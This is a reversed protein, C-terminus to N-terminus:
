QKILKHIFAKGNNSELKIVYIGKRLQRADIRVYDLLESQNTGATVVRGQADFLTWTKIFDADTGMLQILWSDASPNPYVNLQNTEERAMKQSMCLRESIIQVQKQANMKEGCYNEAEAKLIYQGLRSGGFAAKTFDYPIDNNVNFPMSVNSYPSSGTYTGQADAFYWYPKLVPSQTKISFVNNHGECINEEGVIEMNISPVEVKGKLVYDSGCPTLVTATVDAYITNNSRNAEIEAIQSTHGKVVSLPTGSVQWRVGYPTKTPLNTIEFEDSSGNCITKPWDKKEACVVECGPRGKDIEQLLWAVNKATLTTHEETTNPAYYTDFPTLGECSLRRNSYNSFHDNVNNYKVDLASFTNIFTFEMNLYYVNLNNKSLLVRSGDLLSDPLSFTGGPYDDQWYNQGNNFVTIEMKNVGTPIKLFKDFLRFSRTQPTVCEFVKCTEGARPALRIISKLLKLYKNPNEIFVSYRCAEYLGTGNLTGNILGVKRIDSPYGNSNQIGMKQLDSYFKEHFIKSQYNDNGYIKPLSFVLLQRAAPSKLGRVYLERATEIGLGEAYYDVAAQVGTSINAGQHPADFSVWLRANHKMNTIGNKEQKEMYSLAYRSILGGMSPGVIVLKEKSGNSELQSNIMQILKVLAFANREIYDAGGDRGRLDVYGNPTGDSKFYKIKSNENLENKDGLVPFNVIVLDYGKEQLDQGVYVIKGTEKDLYSLNNFINFGKRQDGPDFGDVIIIPKHIKCPIGTATRRYFVRYNSLTTSPYKEQYGQFPIDSEFVFLEGETCNGVKKPTFPGVSERKCVGCLKRPDNELEAEIRWPENGELGTVTWPENPNLWVVEFGPRHIAIRKVVAGTNTFFNEPQFIFTYEVDSYFETQAIGLRQAHFVNYPSELGADTMTEGIQIIRGQDVALTDIEALRVDFGIIPIVNGLLSLNVRERMADYTKPLEPLVGSREIESWGQYIDYPETTDCEGAMDLAAFPYVRDYLYGTPVRLPIARYRLDFQQTYTLTNSVKVEPTEDNQAVGQMVFPAALLLCASGLGKLLAKKLQHTQTKM